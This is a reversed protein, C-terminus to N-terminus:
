TNSSLEEMLTVKQAPTFGQAGKEAGSTRPAIASPAVSRAAAAPGGHVDGIRFIAEIASLETATTRSGCVAAWDNVCLGASVQSGGRNM